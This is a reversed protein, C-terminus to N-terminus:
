TRTCRPNLPVSRMELFRCLHMNQTCPITCINHVACLARTTCTTMSPYRPLTRSTRAHRQSPYTHASILFHQTNRSFLTVACKSCMVKYPNQVLCALCTPDHSPALILRQHVCAQHAQISFMNNSFVKYSSMQSNKATYLLSMSTVPPNPWGQFGDCVRLAVRVGWQSNGGGELLAPTHCFKKMHLFGM